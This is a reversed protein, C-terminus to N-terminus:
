PRAPCSHFLTWFGRPGLCDCPVIKTTFEVRGGGASTVVNAYCDKETMFHIAVFIAGAVVLSVVGIIAYKKGHDEVTDFM